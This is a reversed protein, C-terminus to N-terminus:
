LPAMPTIRCAAHDAGLLRGLSGVVRSRLCVTPTIAALALGEFRPPSLFCGDLSTLLPDSLVLGDWGRLTM